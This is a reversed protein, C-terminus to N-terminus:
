ESSRFDACDCGDIRCDMGVDHRCCEHGCVCREDCDSPDGYHECFPGSECGVDPEDDIDDTM